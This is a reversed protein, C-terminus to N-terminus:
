LASLLRSFNAIEIVFSLTLRYHRYDNIDIIQTIDIIVRLRNDEAGDVFASKDHLSSFFSYYYCYYYCM